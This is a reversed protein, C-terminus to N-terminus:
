LQAESIEIITIGKCTTVSQPNGTQPAIYLSLETYIHESESCVHLHYTVCLEWDKFGWLVPAGWLLYFNTSWILVKQTIM